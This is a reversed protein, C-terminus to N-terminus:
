VGIPTTMGQGDGDISLRELKNSEVAGCAVAVISVPMQVRQRILVRNVTAV